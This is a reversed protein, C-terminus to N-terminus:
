QADSAAKKLGRINMVALCFQLAVVGYAGAPIGWATWVINSAIFLWFGIRRRRKAQAAVFWSATVTLAAAPWQLLDIDIPM